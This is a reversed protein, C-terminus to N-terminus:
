PGFQIIQSRVHKLYTYNKRSSLHVYAMFYFSDELHQLLSLFTQTLIWKNVSFKFLYILHFLPDKVAEIKVKEIRKYIFFPVILLSFPFIFNMNISIPSIIIIVKVKESSVPTALYICLPGHM